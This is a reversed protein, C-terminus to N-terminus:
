RQIRMEAFSILENKVASDYEMMYIHAKNKVYEDRCTHKREHRAYTYMRHRARKCICKNIM